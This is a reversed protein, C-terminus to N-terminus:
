KAKSVYKAVIQRKYFRGNLVYLMNYLNPNKKSKTVFANKYGQADCRFYLNM